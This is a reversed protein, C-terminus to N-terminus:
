YHIRSFYCGYGKDYKSLVDIILIINLNCLAQKLRLNQQRALKMM